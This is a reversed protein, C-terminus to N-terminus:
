IKLEASVKPKDVTGAAEIIALILKGNVRTVQWFRGNEYNRIQEYDNAFIKYSLSFRFPLL